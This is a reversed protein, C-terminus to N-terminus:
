SIIAILLTTIFANHLAHATIAPILSGRWERLLSFTIALSALAPSLAWGQPHILAFVFANIVTSAIVALYPRIAYYMAGRFISEEVLPAWVTTLLYLTAIGLPSTDLARNVAPHSPESGSIAILLFATLIGAIFIPLGAIYGVIGLATERILGKIGDGNAHWGLAIILERKNMGRLLPWLTIPALLWVLALTIDLGLALALGAIVQIAAFGLFFVAVSELLAARKAPHLNPKWNLRPKLKGTAILVLALLALVFGAIIALVAVLIMPVITLITAAARSTIPARLPDNDDLTHARLLGAFFPHRQALRTHDGTTIANPDDALIVARTHRIDTRLNDIENRSATPNNNLADNLADIDDIGTPRGHDLTREYQALTDEAEELIALADADSNLENLVIAGRLQETPNTAVLKIQDELQDLGGAAQLTQNNPAIHQIGLAIRAFYRLEISPVSSPTPLPNLTAASLAISALTAFAATGIAIVLAALTFRLTANGTRRATPTPDLNPHIAATHTHHDDPM